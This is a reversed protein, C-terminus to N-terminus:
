RLTTEGPHPVPGGTQNATGRTSWDLVFRRFLKASPLLRRSASWSIGIERTTGPDTIRLLRAENGRRHDPNAGMRPVIGVGLGAAVFGLVMPLDEGEFSIHPELGAAAFLRESRKRLEWSPGLAIFSEDSVEALSVSLERALRHDPSVALMLDETLIPRWRIEPQTPRRSTFEIDVRSGAQLLSSRGDDSHRFRFGVRPHTIQFERVLEPILWTGLSLQFALTVSGTAPDLLQDIAAFGDDLDHLAADVYRKLTSGAHTLRLIRGTKELLPTGLDRDLRSLARSVAPQSVGFIDAVETVTTGDAVHQFWRLTEIDM